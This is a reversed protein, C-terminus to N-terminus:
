KRSKRLERLFRLFRLADKPMRDDVHEPVADPASTLHKETIDNANDTPVPVATTAPDPPEAPRESHRAFGGVRVPPLAPRMDREAARGLGGVRVPQAAPIKQTVDTPSAAPVEVDPAPTPIKETVDTPSATPVADRNPDAGAGATPRSRAFGGVKVPERSPSLERKADNAFGGVTLDGPRRLKQPASLRPEGTKPDREVKIVFDGEDPIEAGSSDAPAQEEPTPAGRFGEVKARPGERRPAAPERDRGLGGVKVGTTPVKPVRTRRAGTSRSRPMSAQPEEDSPDSEVEFPSSTPATDGGQMPEPVAQDLEPPVPIEMENNKEDVLHVRGNFRKALLNIGRVRPNDIEKGSIRLTTAGAARAQAILLRIFDLLPKIDHTKGGLHDIDEITWHFVSGELRAKGKVSFEGIVERDVDDGRQEPTLEPVEDAPSVTRETDRTDVEEPVGDGAITRTADSRAGSARAPANAAADRAARAPAIIEEYEPSGPEAYRTPSSWYEAYEHPGSFRRLLSVTGDSHSIRVYLPTKPYAPDFGYETRGRGGGPLDYEVFERVLLEERFYHNDLGRFDRPAPLRYILSHPRNPHFHVLAIWWHGDPPGVGTHWGIRVAYEGTALDYFIGVERGRSLALAENYADYAARPTRLGTRFDGTPAPDPEEPHLERLPSAHELARDVGRELLEFLREPANPGERPLRPFDSAPPSQPPEGGGAGAVTREPSSSRPTEPEPTPEEGLKSTTPREVVPPTERPIEEPHRAERLPGEALPVEETRGGGKRSGAFLMAHTQIANLVLRSRAARAEAHTLSGSREAYDIDRLQDGMQKEGLVIGGYMSIKNIAEFARGASFLPKMANLTTEIAEIDGSAQAIVFAEQTERLLLGTVAEGTVAAAGIVSVIDVALSLDWELTGNQWRDIIHEASLAGGVVMAVSGAGPVVLSLTMLVAALDHLRDKALADGVRVNRRSLDRRSVNPISDPIHMIVTGRGYENAGAFREFARAIAAEDSEGEGIYPHGLYDGKATVDYIAWRPRAGHSLPVLQLLLPFSGGTVESAIAARPRLAHEPKTGDPNLASHAENRKAIELQKSLSALEKELRDRTDGTAADLESQKAKVAADLAEVASGYARVELAKIEGDLKEVERPDKALERKIRLLGLQADAAALTNKAVYEASRVEVLVSAVSPLRRRKAHAQPSAICRVLYIGQVPWRLTVENDPTTLPHVVSDYLQGGAARLASVPALALNDREVLIDHIREGTSDGPNGDSALRRKSNQVDEVLGGVRQMAAQELYQDEVKRSASRASQRLSKAADERNQGSFEPMNSVDWREWRYNVVTSADWVQQVRDMTGYTWDLQMTLENSGNEAVLASSATMSARFAPDTAVEGETDGEFESGSTPRKFDETTKGQGRGPVATPSPTANPDLKTDAVRSKSAKPDAPRGPIIIMPVTDGGFWKAQDAATMTSWKSILTGYKPDWGGIKQLTPTGHKDYAGRYSGVTGGIFLGHLPPPSLLKFQAELQGSSSYVYLGDTVVVLKFNIKQERDANFDVALQAGRAAWDNASGDDLYMPTYEPDDSKKGASKSRGKLANTAKAGKAHPARRIIETSGEHGAAHATASGTQQVVHTLEHALLRKGSETDPAYHGAGFVVNRGVTFAQASVASALSHAEADTHVRVASFDANFRPEMFSRVAEPLARGRGSLAHIAHETAADVAPVDPAADSSRHVEIENRDPTLRQIAGVGATPAARHAAAPLPMRMVQDAVRDAEHEYADQPHNVTLKAQLQRARLLTQLYQNGLRQALGFAQPAAVASPSSQRQPSAPQAVAAKTTSV